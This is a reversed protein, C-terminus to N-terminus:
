FPKQTPENIQHAHRLPSAAAKRKGGAHLLTLRSSLRPRGLPERWPLWFSRSPMRSHVRRATEWAEPQTAWWAMTQPDGSADPLNHLNASFTAVVHKDATYAASAFSLMSYPGPIPGDAEVDTSVYIETMLTPKSQLAPRRRM